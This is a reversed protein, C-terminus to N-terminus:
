KTKGKFRNDLFDLIETISIDFGWRQTSEFIKEKKSWMKNMKWVQVNYEELCCEVGNHAVVELDCDDYTLNIKINVYGKHFKNKFNMEFGGDM